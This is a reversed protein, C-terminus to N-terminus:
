GGELWETEFTASLHIDVQRLPAAGTNVFAHAEGAEAVVVDGARADIQAGEVTFRAEGDLVIFLEAYPHRHLAPGGGPPADVFLVSVELGHDAGVLEHAIASWPLEDRRLTKM